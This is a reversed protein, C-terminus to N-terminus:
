DPTFENIDFHGFSYDKVTVIYCTPILDGIKKEFGEASELPFVEGDVPVYVKRGDNETLMYRNCLIKLDAVTGELTIIGNFDDSHADYIFDIQQSAPVGIRDFTKAVPWKIKCGVTFPIGCCEMQWCEYLVVISDNM